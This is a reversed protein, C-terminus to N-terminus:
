YENIVKKIHDNYKFYIAFKDIQCFCQFVSNIYFPSNGILQLGILPPNQFSYKINDNTKLQNSIQLFQANDMNNHYKEDNENEIKVKNILQNNNINVESINNQNEYKLNIVKGQKRFCDILDHTTNKEIDIKRNKFFSEVSISSRLEYILTTLISSYLDVSIYYHMEFVGESNLTGIKIFRRSKGTYFFQPKFYFPYKNSSVEYSLNYKKKIEQITKIIKDNVLCFDVYHYQSFLSKIRPIIPISELPVKENIIGKQKISKILYNINLELELEDKYENKQIEKCIESYNYVNMIDKLFEHNVINYDESKDSKTKIM